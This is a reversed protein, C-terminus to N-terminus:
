RRSTTATLVWLGAEVMNRAIAQIFRLPLGTHQALRQADARVGLSSILTSMALAIQKHEPDAMTEMAARLEAILYNLM